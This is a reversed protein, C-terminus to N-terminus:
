RGAASWRPRRRGPAAPHRPRNTLQDPDRPQRPIDWPNILTLGCGEFDATNRTVMNAGQAQAIAAIMLDLPASPRGAKRRILFLDAYASAADTDFPLIREEFDDFMDRAAKELTRRRRGDTMIALGSFIEAHSVATTYLDHEDQGAVWTAVEAMRDLRMMASLINTDLVFM